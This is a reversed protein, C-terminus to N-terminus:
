FEEYNAGRARYQRLEEEMAILRDEHESLEKLRILQALLGISARVRVGAAVKRNKIISELTELATASIASVRRVTQDILEAEALQLAAKFDPDNLWRHLQKSSVKAAAAAKEITPNTLLAALAVVQEPTLNETPSVNESM